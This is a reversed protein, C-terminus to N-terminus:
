PFHDGTGYYPVAEPLITLPGSPCLSAGIASDRPLSMLLRTALCRNVGSGRRSNKRRAITSPRLALLAQASSSAHVPPLLAPALRFFVSTYACAQVGSVNSGARM